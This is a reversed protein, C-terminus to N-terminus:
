RIVNLLRNTISLLTVPKKAGDNTVFIYGSAPLGRGPIVYSYTGVEDPVPLEAVWYNEGDSFWVKVESPEPYYIDVRYVPMVLRRTYTFVPVPFTVLNGSVELNSLPIQGQWPVSLFQKIKAVIGEWQVSLINRILFQWHFDPSISRQNIPVMYTTDAVVVYGYGRDLLEKGPESVYYAEELSVGPIYGDGSSTDMSGGSVTYSEAHYKTLIHSVYAPQMWDVIERSDSPARSKVAALLDKYSLSKRAINVPRLKRVEVEELKEYNKPPFENVPEGGTIKSAGLFVALNNLITKM